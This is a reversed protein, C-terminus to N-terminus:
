VFNVTLKFPVAVRDGTVSDLVHIDVSAPDGPVLNDARWSVSGPGLNTLAFNLYAAVPELLTITCPGSISSAASFYRTRPTADVRLTLSPVPVVLTSAGSASVHVRALRGSAKADAGHVQWPGGASALEISETFGGGLAVAQTEAHWNGSLQTGFDVIESRLSSEVPGHYTAAAASYLSLADVFIEAMPRDDATIYRTVTDTRRRKYGMMGSVTPASFDYQDVLYAAADLTVEIQCRAAVLSEQGHPSAATKVSDLCKVLFDWVGAPVTNAALRLGDVRDILRAGEWTTGPPGYRVEYRREDHDLAADWALRVEGGAEFGWVRPVDSPRMLKGQAEIMAWESWPGGTTLRSLAQVRVGYVIGQQVRGTRWAPSLLTASEVIRDDAWLEARYGALYAYSAAPWSVAICSSTVGTQEVLYEETAVLGAIVPLNIPSPQTTAPWSPTVVVADSYAAPDYKAVHIAWRGPEVIDAQMVRVPLADLGISHSLAVVAGVRLRVGYDQVKLQAEFDCLSLKNLREEGERVAQSRRNIGPLSISAEIRPLDGSDVGPLKVEVTEHGWDRSPESYTVIMVTPTNLFSGEPKVTLSGDVIMHEDIQLAVPAPADPVLRIAGGADDVFCGAYTRMAAILAPVRTPTDVVLGVTRRRERAGAPGVMGENLTAVEAVSEWVVDFGCCDEHALLDAFALAATDSYGVSGSRPDYLWRGRVIARPQPFGSYIGAPIRLVYYAIGPLTDAYADGSGAFAEVLLPDVPQGPFGLYANMVVGAAPPEGDITVSEIADIPGRSVIVRLYLRGDRIHVIDIRGGFPTRGYVLPIPLGTALVAADREEATRAAANVEARPAVSSGGLPRTPWHVNPIPM